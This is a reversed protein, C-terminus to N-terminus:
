LLPLEITKVLRTWKAIDARIIAAFEEPTGAVVELGEANLRDKVGPSRLLATTERHLWVIIEPPTGAPVLLGYWQGSTYGPVGSEGITPILPAAPSRSSGSVGIARLKGAQVQPMVSSVTDLMLLVQGAMVDILAPAGSKYAVHTMRIQAM